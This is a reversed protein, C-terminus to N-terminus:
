RGGRSPLPVRMAAVGIAAIIAALIRFMAQYSGTWSVCLALLLPGVASALVTLAQAAGQIRGLHGRGYLRPWVSFFLVMVIGGGIGMTAAWAMIHAESAVHPLVALGAALTFLSAGLLRALGMRTALYGGLFNGALATMATVALTRYYVAPGFGREALISENFLGIGSAVLGYLATGLAFVWFAPTALAGGLSMHFAGGSGSPASPPTLGPDSGPRVGIQGRDSAARAGDPELGLSAPSRRVVLWCLPALGAILALGVALWASRWGHAQVLWGVLPFAAMFGVSLVISYVAMAFDLRRVFWHGVTAISVVSLASQGLGRTLMMWVGLDMTSRARSMACVVVGLLAAVATLVIRAGFRDMLRGVGIAFGAGAITAWLNLQAYTVRDLGLDAILPETVLGLGQTRGPLTGVMAAAAVFVVAWGRYLRAPRAPAASVAPNPYV